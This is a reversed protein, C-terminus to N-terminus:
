DGHRVRCLEVYVDARQLIGTWGSSDTNREKQQREFILQQEKLDMKEKIGATKPPMQQGKKWGKECESSPFEVEKLEVACSPEPTSDLPVNRQALLTRIQNQNCVAVAPERSRVLM